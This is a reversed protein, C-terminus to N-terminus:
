ESPNNNPTENPRGGLYLRGVDPDNLIDQGTGEIANRGQDLVYGRDSISLARRANQEVLLIATGAKHIESIRDFITGVLLPSLAASPEDMLILEPETMLSRGIALMQREGGSFLGAHTKLKPKLQPLFDTTRDIAERMAARSTKSPMMLELNELATLSPFVNAVQPVYAIGRRVLLETPVGKIETGKFMISGSKTRVFNMITKLLTSKGAGNPGVVTVLEGQDVHLNTGNLIMSDGYGAVLNSIDLVKM